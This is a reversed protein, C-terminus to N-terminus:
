RKAVVARVAGERVRWRNTVMLGRAALLEEVPADQGDGVEFAVWFTSESLEDILRRYLDLGDPGAWFAEGPEHRELEPPLTGTAREAEAVYPPNCIVAEFPGGPVAAIGGAHLVDVKAQHRRANIRAIEVAGASVDSATVRLDPCELAVAIAV